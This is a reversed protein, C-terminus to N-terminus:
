RWNDLAIAITAPSRGTESAITKRNKGDQDCVVLYCKHEKDLLDKFEGEHSERWAYAIQKADPSWSYSYIDGSEEVQIVKGGAIDLVALVLGLKSPKKDDPATLTSFLVRKGDPSLKGFMAPQKGDTLAKHETGDRNMLYVRVTKEAAGPPGDVSTTLFFKGDRSWDTIVHDASLKLDTKKKTAVNVVFHTAEPSKRNPGDMLKLYFEDTCNSCAIETGDASWAFSRCEVGLDTWPDNKELGRIHLKLKVGDGPVHPMQILAAVKKGDPSLGAHVIMTAKEGVKRDNKGDPDILALIGERAVLIKNPGTPETTYPGRPLLDEKPQEAQKDARKTKKETAPPTKPANPQGEALAKQTRVGIGAGVGILVVVLLVVTAIKLKSILMAKLVGETLAAIKVSIAGKAAMQGTAFLSAASITSSVVSTPVGASAVNQVLVAALAEGSLKVGRDTLRKALLVRARALRSGVTGEPLGLQRAAEKRTKGDLDCLVIVVRYMDPLRSLEQDLLPQLDNWLDQDVVAPEPMVAVQRERGKRKAATARAKMATQHAVGYLWNALLVPSAISAARRVLVLFTAQFADEADHYNSLVRRCVGWVMPGHRQVLAALAAKDRRSIYDELLQGDTLGAGDRLLLAKRLHQIVGSLQGTAM